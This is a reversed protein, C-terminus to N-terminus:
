MGGWFMNLVSYTSISFNGYLIRTFITIL